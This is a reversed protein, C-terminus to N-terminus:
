KEVSKRHGLVFLGLLLGLIIYAVSNQGIRVFPAHSRGLQMPGRLVQPIFQESRETVEGDADVFASIGNNTARAVPKAFEKARVRVMELHQHAALSDGFWADNSTNVMLDADALQPRLVDPYAMEYCISTAVRVDALDFSQQRLDGRAMDSQPIQVFASFLKMLWRVPMYEGFPVLQHKRYEQWQGGVELMANYYDRGNEARSFIGTFVTAQGETEQAVKNLFGQVAYRYTPMATEPWVILDADFHPQSLDYYAGLSVNLYEARLKVEQPVNGQVLVVDLTRDAAQSPRDIHGLLASLSVACVLLAGSLMLSKKAGKRCSLAVYAVCVATIASAGLSGLWPMWAALPTDLLSFGSMLWPFGTLVWARLWETTVWLLGLALGTRGFSADAFWRRWVWMALAPYLALYMAFFLTFLAAAVPPAGGFDHMSNYVWYVGFLFAALGWLWALGLAKRPSVSRCLVFLGLLSMWTLPRWEFPAFGLPYIAGFVPALLWALYRHQTFAVLM